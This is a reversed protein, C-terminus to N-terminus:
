GFRTFYREGHPQCVTGTCEKGGEFGKCFVADIEKLDFAAGDVAVRPFILKEDVDFGDVDDAEILGERFDAFGGTFEADEAAVGCSKALLGFREFRM